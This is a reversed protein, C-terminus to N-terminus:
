HNYDLAREKLFFGILNLRQVIKCDKSKVRRLSEESEEFINTHFAQLLTSHEVPTVKKSGQGFLSM